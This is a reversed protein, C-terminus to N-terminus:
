VLYSLFIVEYAMSNYAAEQADRIFPVSSEVGIHWFGNRFCNLEKHTGKNHALSYEIDM